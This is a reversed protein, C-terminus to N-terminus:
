NGFLTKDEILGSDQMALAAYIDIDHKICEVPSTPKPIHSLPNRSPLSKSRMYATIPVFYGRGRQSVIGDSVQAVACDLVADRIDYQFVFAICRGAIVVEVLTPEAIAEVERLSFGRQLFGEFSMKIAEIMAAKIEIPSKM